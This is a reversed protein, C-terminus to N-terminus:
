SQFGFVMLLIRWVLWALAPTVGVGPVGVVEVEGCFALVVAVVVGSCWDLCLCCLCWLWLLVAVAVRGGQAAERRSRRPPATEAQTAVGGRSRWALRSLWFFRCRWRGALLTEAGCRSWRWAAGIRFHQEHRM